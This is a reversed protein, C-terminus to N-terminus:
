RNHVPVHRNKSRMAVWDKVATKIADILPKCCSWSDFLIMQFPLGWLVAERVLEAGPQTKTRFTLQRLHSSLLDLLVQRYGPLRGFTVLAAATDRLATRAREQRFQLYLRFGVPFQDARNIYYSTVEDHGV